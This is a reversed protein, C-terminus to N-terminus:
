KNHFPMDKLFNNLEEKNKIYVFNLKHKNIIEKHKYYHGEKKKYKSSFNMIGIVDKLSEKYKNDLIFRKFIRLIRIHLPLDLWIVLDCKKIAKEIWSSYVGEIIWEKKQYIRELMRQKVNEDRKKYYKKIWYIDDLDYSKIGFLLSLKRALYTKGSGTSGIIYIRKPLM